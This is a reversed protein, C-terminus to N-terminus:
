VPAVVILAPVSARAVLAEMALLLRTVTLVPPVSEATVLRSIALATVPPSETAPPVVVTPAARKMPLPFPAVPESVIELPVTM